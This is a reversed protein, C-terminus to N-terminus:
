RTEEHRRAMVELVKDLQTRTFRRHRGYRKCPVGHRRVWQDFGRYTTGVYAAAEKATLYTDSM